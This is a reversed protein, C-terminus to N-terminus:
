NTTPVYCFEKGSSLATELTAPDTLPQSQLSTIQWYETTVQWVLTLAVTGVQQKVVKGDNGFGAVLVTLSVQNPAEATITYAVPVNVIATLPLQQTEFLKAYTQRLTTDGIYRTLVSQRLQEQVAHDTGVLFAQNIAQMGSIATTVASGTSHEPAGCGESRVAQAAAAGASASAASSKQGHAIGLAFAIFLAGVLLLVTIAARLKPRRM